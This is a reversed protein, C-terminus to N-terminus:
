TIKDNNLGLKNSIENKLFDRSLNNTKLHLIPLDVVKMLEDIFKDRAQKSKFNHVSGDLEIILRPVIM